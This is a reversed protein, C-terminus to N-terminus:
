FFSFADEINNVTSKNNNKPMELEPVPEEPEKDEESGLLLENNPHNERDAQPIENRDAQPIGNRDYPTNYDDEDDLEYPDNKNELLSTVQPQTILMNLTETKLEKQQQELKTM